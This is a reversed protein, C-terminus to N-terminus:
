QAPETKEPEDKARAELSSAEADAANVADVLMNIALPDAEQGQARPRAVAYGLTEAKKDARQRAKYAAIRLKGEELAGETAKAARDIGHSVKDLIGM